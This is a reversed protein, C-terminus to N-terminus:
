EEKAFIIAKDAMEEIFLTLMGTVSISLVLIGVAITIPLAVFFVQLQPILRNFIGFGVYIIFGIAMIPAAIKIGFMFMNAVSKIVAQSTEGLNPLTGAPFVSYSDIIGEILLHHLNSAFVLVTATILLFLGPASTNSGTSPDFLTATQFGATFGIVEGAVSAASMFIRAGIALSVGLFIEIFVYMLLQSTATPLAPMYSELIPFMALSVTFAMLLRAKRNVALDSIGPFVMFAAAVRFFVLMFQFIFLSSIVTLDM